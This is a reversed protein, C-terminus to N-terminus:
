TLNIMFFLYFSSIKMERKRERDREMERKKKFPNRHLEKDGHLEEPHIGEGTLHVSQVHTICFIIISSIFLPFM